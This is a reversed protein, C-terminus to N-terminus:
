VGGGLSYGVDVVCLAVPDGSVSCIRWKRPTRDIGSVPLRLRWLVFGGSEASAYRPEPHRKSAVDLISSLGQFQVRDVEVRDSRAAALALQGDIQRFSSRCRRDAAGTDTM